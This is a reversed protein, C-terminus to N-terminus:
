NSHVAGLMVDNHVKIPQLEFILPKECNKKQTM